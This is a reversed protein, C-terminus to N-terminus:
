ESEKSLETNFIRRVENQGVLDSFMQYNGLEKRLRGAVIAPHIKLVRSFKEITVASPSLYAESTKWMSRPIFAERALRNAEVEQRDESTSELDDMFTTSEDTIHKWIHATEHLLTHWFNDLRNFRLTLGIIPHGNDNLAAGDLMTGKLHTEIIVCIGHKGLFEVALKPGQEFWSLQALEKLFNASLVARDFEGLEVRKERAKLIVRALWAHLSYKTNPSYADGFLSRKYAVNGFSLGVQDFFSHLINEPTDLAKNAAKNIWGRSIMEKVPFRSWDVIETSKASASDNLGVLTDTSIGLGLALARIMHVTMPRKGGLVESVRSRTGFYPILDAQKLGQEEMRFKIAEIPDPTEVPFKNNEFAELLVTILELRDAETTGTKPNLHMLQSAEDLYSEYQSDTRIVKLEVSERKFM